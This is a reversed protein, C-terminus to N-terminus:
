FGGGATFWLNWTTLAKTKNQPIDMSGGLGFIGDVRTSKKIFGISAYFRQILASPMTATTLDLETLLIPRFTADNPARYRLTSNNATTNPLTGAIGYEGTWSSTLKISDGGFGWLNYGIEGQFGNELTGRLGASFELVSHPSVRVKQTMVNVGPILVDEAQYQKRFLLFRSWPKGQIDITRYQHNRITWNNELSLQFSLKDKCGPRTLPVELLLGWIIGFHGNYGIQPSFMYEGNYKSSTPISIASYTAAYSRGTSFFTTGVALRLESLGIKKSQGNIKSYQWAPNDFATIINNVPTTDPAANQVNWQTLNMNNKVETIPAQIDIWSNELFPIDLFDGIMYRFEVLFGAQQQRPAFTFNGSFDDPLGLWFALMDRDLATNSVKVTPTDPPLFFTKIDQPKVSKQYFPAVLFAGKRSIDLLPNHWLAQHLALQQYGPRTWLFSRANVIEHTVLTDMTAELPSVLALLTILYKKM